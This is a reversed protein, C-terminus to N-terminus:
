SARKGKANKSKYEKEAQKFFDVLSGEIYEGEFWSAMEDPTITSRLYELALCRYSDRDREVLRLKEHLEAIQKKLKRIESSPEAPKRPKLTRSVTRKQQKSAM